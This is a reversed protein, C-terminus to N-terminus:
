VKLCLEKDQKENQIDHRCVLATTIKTIRRSLAEKNSWTFPYSIFFEPTFFFLVLCLETISSMQTAKQQSLLENLHRQQQYWHKIGACAFSSSLSKTTLLNRKILSTKLTYCTLKAKYNYLERAKERAREHARIKHLFTTLTCPNNKLYFVHFASPNSRDHM